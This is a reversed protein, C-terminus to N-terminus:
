NMPESSERLFALQTSRRLETLGSTATPTTRRADETLCVKAAEAVVVEESVRTKIQDDSVAIAAAELQDVLPQAVGIARRVEARPAEVAPAAVIVAQVAVKAVEALIGVPDPAPAVAIELHAVM